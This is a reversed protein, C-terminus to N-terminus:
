RGRTILRSLQRDADIIISHIESLDGVLTVGYPEHGLKVSVIQDDRCAEITVSSDADLIVIGRM